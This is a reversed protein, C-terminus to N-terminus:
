RADLDSLAQCGIEMLKLLHPHPRGAGAWVVALMSSPVIQVTIQFCALLVRATPCPSELLWVFIGMTMLRPCRHTHTM